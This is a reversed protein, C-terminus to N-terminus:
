QTIEPFKEKHDLVVFTNHQIVFIFKAFLYLTSKTATEQREACRKASNNVNTQVSGSLTTNNRGRMWALGCGLPPLRAIAGWQFNWFNKPVVALRVIM